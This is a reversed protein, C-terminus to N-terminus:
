LDRLIHYPNIFLMEELVEISGIFRGPTDEEVM